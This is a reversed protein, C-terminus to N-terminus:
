EACSRARTCPPLDREVGGGGFARREGDAQLGPLHVFGTAIRSSAAASEGLGIGASRRQADEHGVVVLEVAQDQLAVQGRRGELNRDGHVAAGRHVARAALPRVHREEVELHRHHIAVLRRPPQALHLLLLVALAHQDHRDRRVVLLRDDLPREGRSAVAIEHLRGRALHQPLDEGARRDRQHGAARLRGLGLGRVVHEEVRVELGRKGAEEGRAALPSSSIRRASCAASRTANL